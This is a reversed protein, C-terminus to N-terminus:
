VGVEGRCRSGVCGNLASLFGAEERGREKQVRSFDARTRQRNGMRDQCPLLASLFCSKLELAREVPTRLMALGM